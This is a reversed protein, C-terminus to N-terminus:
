RDLGARDPRIDDLYSGAETVLAYYERALRYHHDSHRCARDLSRLREELGPERCIASSAILQHLIAAANHMDFDAVCRDLQPLRKALERRFLLALEARRSDRSEKIGSGHGPHTISKLSAADVPKAMVREIGLGVTKRVLETLDAGSLLIIRPQPVNAQWDRRIHRTLELGNMGPLHLDLIILDPQWRLALELGTVACHTHKVAGSNERLAAVTYQRSIEHDDVVLTRYGRRFTDNKM